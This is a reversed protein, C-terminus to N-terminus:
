SLLTSAVPTYEFMMNVPKTHCLNSRLDYQGGNNTAAMETSFPHARSSDCESQCVDCHQVTNSKCQTAPTTGIRQLHMFGDRLIVLYQTDRRRSRPANVCIRVRVKSPRVHDTCVRGDVCRFYKRLSLWQNYRGGEDGRCQHLWQYRAVVNPTCAHLRRCWAFLLPPNPGTHTGCVCIVSCSTCVHACWRRAVLYTVENSPM